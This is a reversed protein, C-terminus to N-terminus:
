FYKEWLQAIHAINLEERLKIGNAALRSALASDDAVRAMANSLAQANGKPVLLGNEENRMIMRAGGGDCDTCISPLGLAMAELMSNSLGETDSSSVFMASQLIQEHIDKQAPHIFIVHQLNKHNIMQELEKKINGDGFIHLTYETHTKYFIEFANILLPLNKVKALRCFNVINKNREAKYPMPLKASIPNPIIIAKKQIYQPFFAKIDPTQCVLTNCFRYLFNRLPTKILGAGTTRPNAREALVLKMNLGLCAAATILNPYYEWAIVVDPKQARVLKRVRYIRSFFNFASNLEEVNVSPSLPYCVNKNLVLINVEYQKSSYFNALAVLVREAGGGGLHNCVFTIKKNM